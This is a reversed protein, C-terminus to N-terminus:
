KRGTVFIILYGGGCLVGSVIGLADPYFSERVDFVVLDYEEGLIAAAREPPLANEINPSIILKNKFWLNNLFATLETDSYNEHFAVALRQRSQLLISEHSKLFSTIIEFM